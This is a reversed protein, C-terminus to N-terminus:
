TVTFFISDITSQQHKRPQIQISARGGTRRYKRLSQAVATPPTENPPEHFYPHLTLQMRVERDARHRNFERKLASVPMRTHSLNGLPKAAPSTPINFFRNASASYTYLSLLTHGEQTCVLPPAFPQGRDCNTLDNLKEKRVLVLTPRM